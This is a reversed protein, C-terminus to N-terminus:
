STPFIGRYFVRVHSGLCNARGDGSSKIGKGSRSVHMAAPSEFGGCRWLPREVRTEPMAPSTRVLDRIPARRAVDSKIGESAATAEVLAILEATARFAAITGRESGQEHITKIM